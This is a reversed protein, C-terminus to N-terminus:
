SKEGRGRKKGGKGRGKIMGTTPTHLDVNFTVNELVTSGNVQM